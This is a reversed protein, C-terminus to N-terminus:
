NTKWNKSRPSGVQCKLPRDFIYELLSQYGGLIWHLEWCLQLPSWHWINKKNPNSSSMFLISQSNIDTELNHFTEKSTETEEQVTCIYNYPAFFWCKIDSNFFYIIAFDGFRNVKWIFINIDYKLYLEIFYLDPNTDVFKNKKMLGDISREFHPEALRPMHRHTNCFLSWKQLCPSYIPTRAETDSCAHMNTPLCM